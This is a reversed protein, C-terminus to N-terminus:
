ITVISFQFSGTFNNKTPSRCRQATIPEAFERGHLITHPLFRPLFVRLLASKLPTSNSIVPHLPLSNWMTAIQINLLAPRPTNRTKFKSLLLVTLSAFSARHQLAGWSFSSYRAEIFSFSNSIKSDIQPAPSVSKLPVRDRSSALRRRQEEYPCPKTGKRDTFDTLQKV